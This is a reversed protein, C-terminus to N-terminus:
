LETRVAAIQTHTPPPSVMNFLFAQMPEPTPAWRLPGTGFLHRILIMM